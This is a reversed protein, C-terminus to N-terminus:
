SCNVWQPLSVDNPLAMVVLCTHRCHAINLHTVVLLNSDVCHCLVTNDTDHLEGPVTLIFWEFIQAHEYIYFVIYFHFSCKSHFIEVTYYQQESIQNIIVQTYVVDHREHSNVSKYFINKICSSYIFHGYQRQWLFSSVGPTLFM